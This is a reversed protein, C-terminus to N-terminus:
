KVDGLLNNNSKIVPIHPEVDFRGNEKKLFSKSIPPIYDIHGFIVKLRVRWSKNHYFEYAIQMVGSFVMNIPNLYIDPQDTLGLKPLKKDPKQYTGFLYDWIPLESGLNVMAHKPDSSHHMVHYPGSLFLWFFPRQWKSQVSSEYYTVLHSYADFYAWAMYFLLPMVIVPDPYILKVVVVGPLIVLMSMLFGLLFKPDAELTTSYGLTTSVHHPRHSLLWLLRYRHSSWHMVYVMFSHVLIFVSGAVIYPVTILTPVQHYWLLITDMTGILLSFATNFDGGNVHYLVAVLVAVLLMVANFLLVSLMTFIRYTMTPFFGFVKKYRMYDKICVIGRMLISVIMAIFLWLFGTKEAALTYLHTLSSGLSLGKSAWLIAVFFAVVVVFAFISIESLVRMWYVKPAKIDVNFM